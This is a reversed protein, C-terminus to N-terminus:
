SQFYGLQVLIHIIIKFTKEERNIHIEFPNENKEKQM